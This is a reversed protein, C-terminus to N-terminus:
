ATFLRMALNSGAPLGYDQMQGQFHEIQQRIMRAADPGFPSRNDDVVDADLASALQSAVQMMRDFVRGGDAIRPVDVIMTIGQTELERLSEPTLLTPELNGLVFLSNGDDDEAHFLGDARLAM